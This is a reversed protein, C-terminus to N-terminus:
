RHFAPAFDGLHVKDQNGTATDRVVKDGARVFVPAFDGLHVKGQNETAADRVVKDGAYIKTMSTEM